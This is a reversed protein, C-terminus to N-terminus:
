RKWKDLVQQVQRETEALADRAAVKGTVVDPGLSNYLAAAETGGPAPILWRRFEMQEGALKKVPDNQHFAASKATAVRIPIRNFQLAFQLNNQENSLTELFTWAGEPSRSQKTICFSHCGGVSARRGGPPIPAPGTTYRLDSANKFADRVPMDSGEFMYALTGNAFAGVIDGNSTAAQLGTYGGQANCVKTLWELARLGLENNFTAKTGDASLLQGGLQTYTLLFMARPGGSGQLPHYGVRPPAPQYLRGIHQEM